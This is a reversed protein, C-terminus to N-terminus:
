KLKTGKIWIEHGREGITEIHFKYKELLTEIQQKNGGKHPHIEVLVVRCMHLVGELGQLVYLEDGEVDIKIVNPSPLLNEQVLSDGRVTRTYLPIKSTRKTIVRGHPSVENTWVTDFFVMEDRGWLPLNVVEVNELQNLSVNAILRSVAFPNPEFAIVRANKYLKGVTCTYLGVNAGIDWFVDEEQIESFLEKQILKETKAVYRIARYDKYTPICMAISVDGMDITIRWKRFFYMLYVLRDVLRKLVEWIGHEQYVEYTKRFLYM